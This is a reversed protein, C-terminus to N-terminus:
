KHYYETINGIIYNKDFYKFGTGYSNLYKSNIRSYFQSFDSNMIELSRSSGHLIRFWDQQAGFFTQNANQKEAQFIHPNYTSPYIYQCVSRGYVNNPNYITNHGPTYDKQQATTLFDLISDEPLKESLNQSTIKALMSAYLRHDRQKGFLKKAIIHSMKSAVQPFDPTWYFPVRHVNPFDDRLPKKLYNLPLDVFHTRVMGDETGTIYPKDTGTVIAITKGNEALTHLNKQNWMTGEFGAHADIGDNCNIIWEDPVPSLIRDFSDIHTVKINPYKTSIENLLPMQAYKFESVTNIMRTDKDNWQWNSLGSLPSEGIVEDPYIGNNLFSYLVNTSDAGGSCRIVVYDYNERIQLARLRYLEDISESPEVKWNFNEYFSDYFNWNVEEQKIQASLIATIKNPYIIGNVEYFGVKETMINM